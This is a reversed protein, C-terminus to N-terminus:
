GKEMAKTERVAKWIPSDTVVPLTARAIHDLSRTAFPVASRLLITNGNEDALNHYSGTLHGPNAGVHALGHSRQRGAGPVLRGPGARRFLRFRAGFSAPMGATSFNGDVIVERGIRGTRKKGAIKLRTARVVSPRLQAPPM